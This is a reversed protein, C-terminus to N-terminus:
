PTFGNKLLFGLNLEAYKRARENLPYKGTSVENMFIFHHPKLKKNKKDWALMKNILDMTIEPKEHNDPITQERELEDIQFLLESAKDIVTDIIKIGSIRESDGIKSNNRVRGALNFAISCQLPTLNQTSKGWQEIKHWIEPPISKIKDLEDQIIQMATEEDTIRKRQNNTKKGLFDDNIKEFDVKFKSEKLENWCDEKKAWEGYLSGPANSKIFTEVQVMLDYLLEALQASIAQSKWIKYLDLNYSSLFGFLAISYPVTIFRM